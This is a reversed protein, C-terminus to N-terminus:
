FGEGRKVLPLSVFKGCACHLWTTSGLICIWKMFDHRDYVTLRM